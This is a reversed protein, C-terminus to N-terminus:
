NPSILSRAIGVSAATMIVNAYNQQSAQLVNVVASCVPSATTVFSNLVQSFDHPICLWNYVYGSVFHLVYNLGVGVATTKVIEM